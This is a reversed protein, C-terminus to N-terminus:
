YGIELTVVTLRGKVRGVLTINGGPWDPGNMAMMASTVVDATFLPEFSKAFPATVITVKTRDDAWAGYGWSAGVLRLARGPPPPPPPDDMTPRSGCKVRNLRGGSLTGGMYDATLSFCRGDSFSLTVPLFGRAWAAVLRKGAPEAVAFAGVVKVHAAGARRYSPDIRFLNSLSADALRTLAPAGPEAPLAVGPQRADGSYGAPPVFQRAEAAVALLMVALGAGGRMWAAMGHM